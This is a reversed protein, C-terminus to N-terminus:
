KNISTIWEDVTMNKAKALAAIEAYSLVKTGDKLTVNGKSDVKHGKSSDDLLNESVSNKKSQNLMKGTQQIGQGKTGIDKALQSFYNDRDRRDNDDRTAEGQMVKDDQMNEFGAQKSLLGIMQKSFNDYVDAGADNAQSDTAIDLARMQNVGRASNRNRATASTRDKEINLLANDQQTDLYTKASDIKDLADNGFGEFANINPTDGARQKQTNKMPATASYMTGALGLIDGGTMKFNGDVKAGSDPDTGGFFNRFLNGMVTGGGEFEAPKGEMDTTGMQKMLRVVQQLRKDKERDMNNNAITRKLTSKLVTDMENDGFLKELSFEKKSRDSEREAMTQGKILIRKSFIDTGEPLTTKIGGDKHDPGKFDILGGDPLKATEGGEVEVGVNNVEGGLAKKNYKKFDLGSEEGSGIGSGVMSLGNELAMGGLIDLGQAWGNNAAKEKAKALMIDNETMTESPSEIYNRVLGNKGSGLPYKKLKNKKM